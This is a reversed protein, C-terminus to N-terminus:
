LPGSLLSILTHGPLKAVAVPVQPSLTPQSVPVLEVAAAQAKSPLLGM